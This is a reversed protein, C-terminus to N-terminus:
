LTQFSMSLCAIRFGVHTERGQPYYASRFTTTFWEAGIISWSGGRLVRIDDGDIEDRGTHYGTLCWEWVNGTMDVVGFPSDAIGEYQKVPTTHTSHYPIVSHNCFDENWDDGWVYKQPNDDQIARQWQVDTPLTTIVGTKESVWRCFAIAEYWSVGVIPYDDGNWLTNDWLRPKKIDDAKWKRGSDTWWADQQYGGVEIFERYQRNTIPYKAMWFAPSYTTTKEQIYMDDSPADSTLTVNGEPIYCWDFPAPLMISPKIAIM